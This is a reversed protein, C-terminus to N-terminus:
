RSAALSESLKAKWEAVKEPKGWATYLAIVADLAERVMGSSNGALRRENTQLQQFAEVVLPEAEAFKGQGALAQGLGSLVRPRPQLRLPMPRLEPNDYGAIARRLMAEAEVFSRERLLTLGFQGHVFAVHPGVGATGSKGEFSALATAL